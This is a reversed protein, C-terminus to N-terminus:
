LWIECSVKRSIFILVLHQVHITFYIGSVGLWSCLAVCFLHSSFLKWVQSLLGLSSPKDEHRCPFTRPVTCHTPCLAVWMQVLLVHLSPPTLMCATSREHCARYLYHFVQQLPNPPFASPLGCKYSFLILHLLHPLMFQAARVVLGRMYIDLHIAYSTIDAIVSKLM